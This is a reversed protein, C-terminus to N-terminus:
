YYDRSGASSFVAGAPGMSLPAIRSPGPPAVLQGALKVFLRIVCSKRGSDEGVGAWRGAGAGTERSGSRCAVRETGM